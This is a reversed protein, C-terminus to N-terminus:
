AGAQGQALMLMAIMFTCGYLSGVLLRCIVHFPLRPAAPQSDYEKVSAIDSTHRKLVAGSKPGNLYAYQYLTFLAMLTAVFALPYITIFGVFDLFVSIIMHVLAWAVAGWFREKGYDEKTFDPHDELFQITTGDLISITLVSFAAYMLQLGGHWVHSTFFDLSFFHQLSHLLCCLGGMSIGLAMVEVRGKGPRLRERSDAWSGGFSSLAMSVISQLALTLGIAESSLNGENELFPALYRGGTASIWVFFSFYLYGPRYCVHHQSHGRSDPDQLAM